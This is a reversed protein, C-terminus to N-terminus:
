GKDTASWTMTSTSNLGSSKAENRPWKPPSLTAQSGTCTNTHTEDTGKQKNQNSLGPFAADGIALLNEHLDQAGNTPSPSSILTLAWVRQM